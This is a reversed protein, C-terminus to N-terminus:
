LLKQQLVQMANFYQQQSSYEYATVLDSMRSNGAADYVICQTTQIQGDVLFEYPEATVSGVLIDDAYFEVLLIGSVVDEATLQLLWKNKLINQATATYEIITPATKDIKISISKVEEVNPPIAKDDSYFYVTHEGDTDVLIPSEYETWDAADDVKYYTHNVGMPWKNGGIGKFSKGAPDIATLMVMVNSIYWNNQGMTGSLEASTEPPTTDPAQIVFTMTKKDNNPSDDGPLITRIELRIDGEDANEFTVDPFTVETSWGSSLIPITVNEEYFLIDEKMELKWIKANVLISYETFSGFNNAVGAIPYTGPAWNGSPGTPQTIESIGTDHIYTLTIWTIIENDNPNGDTEDLIATATVRYDLDFGFTIDSPTWDPYVVNITEGASIGISITEDYEPIFDVAYIRVNDVEYYWDWSDAFYYFRVQVNAYGCYATIDFQVDEGPGSPSHDTTWHQLNTWNAGGDISIDVDAYDSSLSNFAATYTFLASPIETLDMSPSILACEMPWPGGSGIDDADADACYGQGGAYNPRADATQDNRVWGHNQIIQNTWGTPPFTGEFYEELYMTYQAKEIVMHADVSEDNQGNNALIVEPTKTEAQGDTPSVIETLAVDHFYGFYLTFPADLYNNEPTAEGGVTAEAEALYDIEVNEQVNMDGPTWTSMAVQITAGSAIDFYQTQNYENVWTSSTIGVDDIFWGPYQVSTDSGFHFRIKVEMGNYASLDVTEEEWYKQVHGTWIPEPYLPNASNATGTYGNLPTLVTWTAGGDTSIKINAGDYSAETDYWHWFTLEAYAPVVFLPTDLKNNCSAPYNADLDTGWVKVGSHASSPGTSQTPTGWEWVVTPTGSGVYGGNTTEFDEITGSVQRKGILVNLPVGYEDNDGVNTITVVPAIAGANGSSPANINDIVLDHDARTQSPTLSLPMEASNAAESVQTTENPNISVRTVGTSAASGFFLAAVLIATFLYLTQVLRKKRIMKKTKM